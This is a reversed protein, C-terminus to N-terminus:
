LRKAAVIRKRAFEKVDEPDFRVCKELKYHRILGRKAWSYVTPEKVSLMRAVQKPSILEMSKLGLQNMEGFTRSPFAWLEPLRRGRM